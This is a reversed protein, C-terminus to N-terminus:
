RLIELRAAIFKRAQRAIDNWNVDSLAIEIKEEHPMRNEKEWSSLTPNAYTAIQFYLSDNRIGGMFIPVIWKNQIDASRVGIGYYFTHAEYNKQIDDQHYEFNGGLSDKIETAVARFTQYLADFLKRDSQEKLKTTNNPASKFESIKKSSFTDEETVPKPPESVGNKQLAPLRKEYYNEILDRIETWRISYISYEKKYVSDLNHLFEYRGLLDFQPQIWDKNASNLQFKFMMGDFSFSIRAVIIRSTSMAVELGYHNMYTYNDIDTKSGGNGTTLSSGYLQTIKKRERDVIAGISDVAAKFLSDKEASSSNSHLAPLDSKSPTANDNSSGGTTEAPSFSYDFDEGVSSYICPNQDVNKNYFVRDHVRELMKLVPLGPTELFELLAQTYESHGGPPGDSSPKNAETSFCILTGNGTPNMAALGKQFKGVKVARPEPPLRCADLILINLKAGSAKMRNLIDSVKYTTRNLIVDSVDNGDTPFLYNEGNNQLGHGAFYFLAIDCNRPISRAWDDIHKRLDAVNDDTHVQPHFHLNTLSTGIDKADNAPNHLKPYKFYNGVGIVLATRVPSKIADYSGQASVFESKLFFAILTVLPYIIRASM